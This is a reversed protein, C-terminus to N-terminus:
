DRWSPPKREGSAAEPATTEHKEGAELVPKLDFINASPTSKGEEADIVAQMRAQMQNHEEFTFAKKLVEV